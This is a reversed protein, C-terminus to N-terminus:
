SLAHIPRICQNTRFWSVLLRIGERTTQQFWRLGAVIQWFRREAPGYGVNHIRGRWLRCNLCAATCETCETHEEEDSTKPNVHGGDSHFGERPAIPVKLGSGACGCSSPPCHSASGAKQLDIARWQFGSLITWCVVVM